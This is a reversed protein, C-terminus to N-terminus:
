NYKVSSAIAKQQCHAHFLIEAKEETFLNRDIRGSRFERAIFEDVMFSNCAIKEAAAKLDDGALEPYEDRFGLIASPEIGILHFSRM